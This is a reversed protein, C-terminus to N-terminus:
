NSKIYEDRLKDEAQTILKIILKHKVSMFLLRQKLQWLFKVVLCPIVENNGISELIGGGTHHLSGVLKNYFFVVHLNLFGVLLPLATRLVRNTQGSALLVKRESCILWWCSALLVKRESCILV